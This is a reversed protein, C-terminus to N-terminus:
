RAPPIVLKGPNLIGRPDLAQKLTAMLDMEVASKYHRIEDMRLRGVGHEASISGGLEAILDHVIRNVAAQERKFAGPASGEPEAPNFHINGDGIHGFACIRIGPYRGALAESARTIFTAIRSLPVSVDHKLSVGEHNQAEPVSERIRWLAAAQADSGAITGDTVEGAEMGDALLQEVPERLTGPAGQGTFEVLVYWPHRGDLPDVVDAVHRAAIDLCYRQILEFTTVQEGVLGRARALLRVAAHPDPVAVFATVRDTPKPHLKLVAKTIIGLTGESGIFLQKLDYGTNDKRLGKLGDWVRGDALVVELGLVLARANGYRLVQTGGANTSLNGGIQCSGEAALSLPFLRDHEDAARQIDALICGAEVTMTDNDIDVELIRNMRSTSLIIESDDDHPQSGGTLGTNGGQPVVPTGTEACIRMVEALEATDAPRVVMPVSGLWNDRWSKLLPAMEGADTIVGRDGVVARIRDLVAASVPRPAPKASASM